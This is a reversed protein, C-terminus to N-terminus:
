CLRRVQSNIRANVELWIREVRHNQRSTTQLVPDHEQHMHQSALYRQVLTFETGQDTRVQDWIGDSVLLPRFVTNYITIPNKRSMTLFGVIKRCYSDVAVFHVIGYLVLKENQDLHINEGYFKARYPIPNMARRVNHSRQPLALPYTRSVSRGLRQQRVHVGESHLLESLNSWYHLSIGRSM